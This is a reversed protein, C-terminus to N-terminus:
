KKVVFTRIPEHEQEKPLESIRQKKNTSAEGLPYSTMVVDEDPEFRKDAM